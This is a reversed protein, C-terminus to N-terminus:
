ETGIGSLGERTFTQLYKHNKDKKEKTTQNTQEGGQESVSPPEGAWASCERRANSTSFWSHGFGTVSFLNAM